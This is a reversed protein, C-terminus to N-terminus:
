AMAVLDKGGVKAVGHPGLQETLAEAAKSIHDDPINVEDLKM